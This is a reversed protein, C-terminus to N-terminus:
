DQLFVKAIEQVESMEPMWYSLEMQLLPDFAAGSHGPIQRYEIADSLEKFQVRDSAPVGLLEAIVIVPLPASFDRVAEMRGQEVVLYLLTKAIECIRPELNQVAKPTFAKEIMGRIVKHKPPAATMM